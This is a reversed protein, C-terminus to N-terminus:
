GWGWGLYGDCPGDVALYDVAPEGMWVGGGMWALVVVAGGVRCQWGGGGVWGCVVGLVRGCRITWLQNLSAALLQALLQNPTAFM